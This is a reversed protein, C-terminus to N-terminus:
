MEERGAPGGFEMQIDTVDLQMIDCECGLIEGVSPSTRGFDGHVFEKIYTGAQTTLELTFFKKTGDVFNAAAAHIVRQRTASTRRHLVRTPTKQNITLDTSATSLKQLDDETLSKSSWCVCSYTKQKESSGEHMKIYNEQSVRHVGCATVVGDNSSEMLLEMEDCERQTSFALPNRPNHVELIFPRGGGLMRVDMDERGASNLKAGDAKFKRLVQKELAQQVSGDGVVGGDAFWPSQPVGRQWKLYRGGVYAPAHWPFFVCSVNQQSNQQSNANKEDGSVARMAATAAACVTSGAGQKHRESAVAFHEYSAFKERATREAVNYGAVFSVWKQAPSDKLAPLNLGPPPGRKKRNRPDRNATDHAQKMAFETEDAGGGPHEFLVGFRFPAKPDHKFGNDALAAVLVAELADRVPVTTPLYADLSNAQAVAGNPRAGGVGVRDLEDDDDSVALALADDEPTVPPLTASANTGAPPADKEGLLKRLVARTAAQRMPLSPPLVLDLGYTVCEHGGSKFGAVYDSIKSPRCRPNDKKDGANANTFSTSAPPEPEKHSAGGGGRDRSPSGEDRAVQNANPDFQLIGLCCPCPPRYEGSSTSVVNTERAAAERYARADAARTGLFRLVCQSCAGVRRLEHEVTETASESIVM